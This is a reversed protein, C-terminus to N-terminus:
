FNVYIESVFLERDGVFVKNIRKASAVALRSVLVKIRNNKPIQLQFRPKARDRLPIAQRSLFVKARRGDALEEEGLEDFDIEGDVDKVFAGQRNADGVLFYKWHTERALFRIHYDNYLQPPNKTLQELEEPTVLISVLGLSPPQRSAPSSGRILDRTLEVNRDADAIDLPTKGTPNKRTQEPGFLLARRESFRL